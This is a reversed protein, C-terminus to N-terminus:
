SQERRAKWALLRPLLWGALKALLGSLFGGTPTHAATAYADTGIDERLARTALEMPADLPVGNADVIRNNITFSAVVGAADVLGGRGVAAELAARAEPLAAGPQPLIANVFRVLADGHPVGTGEGSGRTM